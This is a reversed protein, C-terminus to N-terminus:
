DLMEYAKLAKIGDMPGESLMKQIRELGDVVQHESSTFWQGFGGNQARSLRPYKKEIDLFVNRHILMAGTGVWNVLSLQNHPAKRAFSAAAPIQGESFVPPGNKHRGFYLAGVLTKQHSMLRDLTNLRASEDPMWDWGTVTKFWGADGMPVVMDDDITLMFELDTELFKDAIHNRTHAVFADGYSLSSATKRKDTLQSICFATIPHVQKQWPCAILVRKSFSIVSAPPSVVRTPVGVSHDSFDLAPNM